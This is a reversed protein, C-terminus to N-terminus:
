ELMLNVSRWASGYKSLQKEGWPKDPGVFHVILPNDYERAMLKNNDVIWEFFNFSFPLPCLYDLLIANLSDQEAYVSNPNKNIWSVIQSEIEESRWFNLDAIFVGSNFYPRDEDNFVRKGSNVTEVVALFPRSTKYNLLPDIDRLIVTDPDIYIATDYDPLVSGLFIRQYAHPTVYPTALNSTEGGIIASLQQTASRFTINLNSQRVSASYEDQLDIMSEPVLCILDLRDEGHYNIGLSKAMVRSYGMYNEDFSTVITKRM